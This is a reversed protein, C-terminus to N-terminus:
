SPVCLPRSTTKIGFMNAMDRRLVITVGGRTGAVMFPVLYAAADVRWARKRLAGRRFQATRKNRSYSLLIRRRRNTRRREKSGGTALALIRNAFTIARM